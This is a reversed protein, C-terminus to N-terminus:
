AVLRKTPSDQKEARVVYYESMDKYFQAQYRDDGNNDEGGFKRIAQGFEESYLAARQNFQVQMAFIKKELEANREMNQQIKADKEANGVTVDHVEYTHAREPVTWEPENFTIVSTKLDSAGKNQTELKLMDTASMGQALAEAKTMQKVPSKIYASIGTTDSM